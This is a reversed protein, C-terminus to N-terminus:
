RAEVIKNLRKVDISQSQRRPFRKLKIGKDRLRKAIASASNNKIGLKKAVESVSGAAKWVKVFQDYDVAKPRGNKKKTM